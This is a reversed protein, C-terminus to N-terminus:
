CYLYRFLFGNGAALVIHAGNQSLAVAEVGTNVRVVSVSSVEKGDQLSFIHADGDDNGVVAFENNSSCPLASQDGKGLKWESLCTGSVIDWLQFSGQLRLIYRDDDVPMIGRIPSTSVEYADGRSSEQGDMGVRLLGGEQAVLVADGRPSIAAASVSGSVRVVGANSGIDVLSVDGTSSDFLVVHERGGCHDWRAPALLCPASCVIGTEVVHTVKSEVISVVALRGDSLLLVIRPSKRHMGSDLSGPIWACAQIHGMDEEPHVYQAVVAVHDGMHFDDYITLMRESVVALLNDCVPETEVSCYQASLVDGGKQDKLVAKLQFKKEEDVMNEEMTPVTDISVTM